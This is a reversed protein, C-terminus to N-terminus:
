LLKGQRPAAAQAARRRAQRKPHNREPDYIKPRKIRPPPVPRTRLLVKAILNERRNNLWRSMTVAGWGFSAEGKYPDFKFCPRGAPTFDPLWVPTDMGIDLFAILTHGNGKALVFGEQVSHPEGLACEGQRAIDNVPQRYWYDAMLM